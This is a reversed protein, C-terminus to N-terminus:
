PFRVEIDKRYRLALDIDNKAGNSKGNWFVNVLDAAKVIDVNRKFGASKGYTEWDAPFEQYELHWAEAAERAWTDVGRAGGSVITLKLSPYTWVLRKVREFVADRNIGERSGVIAVKEAVKRSTNAGGAHATARQLLLDVPEPVHESRQLGAALPLWHVM